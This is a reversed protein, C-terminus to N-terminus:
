AGVLTGVPADTIGDAVDRGMDPRHAVDPGRGQAHPAAAMTMKDFLLPEIYRQRRQRMLAM